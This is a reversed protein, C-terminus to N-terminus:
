YVYSCAPMTLLAADKGNPSQPDIVSSTWHSTIIWSTLYKLAKVTVSNTPNHSSYNAQLSSWISGMKKRFYSWIRGPEGLMRWTILGVTKKSIEVYLHTIEPNCIVTTVTVTDQQKIQHWKYMFPRTYTCITYLNKCTFTLLLIRKLPLMM